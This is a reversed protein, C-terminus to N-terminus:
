IAPHKQKCRHLPSTHQCAAKQATSYLAQLAPVLRRQLVPRRSHPGPRGHKNHGVQGVTFVRPLRPYHPLRQAVHDLTAGAYRGRSHESQYPSSSFPTVSGPRGAHRDPDGTLHIRRGEHNGHRKGHGHCYFGPLKGDGHLGRTPVPVRRMARSARLESVSRRSWVASTFIQCPRAPMSGYNNFQSVASQINRGSEPVAPSDGHQSHAASRGGGRTETRLDGPGIEWCVTIKNQQCNTRSNTRCLKAKKQWTSCQVSLKLFNV